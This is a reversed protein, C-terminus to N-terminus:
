TRAMATEDKLMSRFYDRLQPTDQEGHVSAAHEAVARVVKTRKAPSISRAAPATPFTAAISGSAHWTTEETTTNQAWSRSAPKRSMAALEEKRLELRM